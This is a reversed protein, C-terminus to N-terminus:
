KKTAGAAAQLAALQEKAKAQAHKLRGSDRRIEDARVLTRLDDEARWDSEGPYSDTAKVSKKTTAM